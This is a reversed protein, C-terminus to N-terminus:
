NGLVERVKHALVKPSFPKQLFGSNQDVADEIYGSTFIVGANPRIARLKEVLQQGGMLPMVVDTLILAIDENAREQAMQLAEHGNSAELVTYGLDRLM